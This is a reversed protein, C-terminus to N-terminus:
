TEDALILFKDDLRQTEDTLILFEDVLIKTEHVLVVAYARDGVL